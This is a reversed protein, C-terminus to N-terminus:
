VEILFFFISPFIFTGQQFSGLLWVNFRGASAQGGVVGMNKVFFLGVMTQGDITLVLWIGCSGM